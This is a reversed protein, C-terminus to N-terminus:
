YFIVMLLFNEILGEEFHGGRAQVGSHRNFLCQEVTEYGSASCCDYSVVGECMGLVTSALFCMVSGRQTRM